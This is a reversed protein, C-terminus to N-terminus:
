VHTECLPGNSWWPCFPSGGKLIEKQQKKDLVTIEGSKLLEKLM